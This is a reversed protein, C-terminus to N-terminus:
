KLWNAILQLVTLLMTLNIELEFKPTKIRLM